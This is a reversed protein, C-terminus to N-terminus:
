RRLNTRALEVIEDGRGNLIARLMYLSFGKAQELEIKPPMALEQKATVVDVLAPGPSKLARELAPRVDAPDEVRIGTIGVAEAMAAFESQGSRDHREVYGGAKMELAVFGLSSNDFVVVKVPLELQVLSLFDGMLMQLRRRRLALDGAPGPVRGARRDGAADREGDLRSQVLRHHPAQREDQPLTGGVRDPHRCRLHLDRRRERGREAGQCCIASPDAEQGATGRALRRAGRAGQRLPAQRCRSVGRGQAKLRPLLAAATAKVDGVLGLELAARRGLEEGRIDVQLIKASKPYFARYPFDTGLMLLADCEKMAHYGSSFGILGTMGVDFPNDWEVYEKGRMPHVIPAKLAGALAIIEAHAGACGSGCLMTVRDAGNLIAALRELEAAAPVVTPAPPALLGRQAPPAAKLAVDGPVVIVAVGGKTMAAQMASTLARPMQQPTSVLECYHSCEKFLIEPHTEQFYNSGIESSPIHAAIALVPVRNRHCDFLGNILHLNGPGCSGACVALKGTVHAEAGAAFAGAEEHRVHMWRITGMRYLSTSGTSATATVGWIREVGAAALVEVMQDAVTQAM